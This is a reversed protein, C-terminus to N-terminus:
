PSDPIQGCSEFDSQRCQHQSQTQERPPLPHCAVPIRSKRNELVFFKKKHLIYKLDNLSTGDFIVIERQPPNEIKFKM